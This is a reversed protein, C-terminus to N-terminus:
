SNETSEPLRQDSIQKKMAREKLARTSIVLEKAIKHKREQKQINQSANKRLNSEM